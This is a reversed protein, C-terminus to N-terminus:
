LYPQQRVSKSYVNLKAHLADDESPIIYIKSVEASIKFYDTGNFDTVEIGDTRKLYENSEIDWDFNGYHKNDLNKLFKCFFAQYM